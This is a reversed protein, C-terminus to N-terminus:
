GCLFGVAGLGEEERHEAYSYRQDMLQEGGPQVRWPAIGGIDGCRMGVLPAWVYIVVAGYINPSQAMVTLIVGLRDSCGM